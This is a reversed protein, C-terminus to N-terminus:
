KTGLMAMAIARRDVAQTYRQVEALTLHGSMTAIQHVSFNKEAWYCCFAKRLGHASCQEPLGAEAIWKRLQNGFANGDAWAGGRGHQMWPTGLPLDVVLSALEDQVPIHAVAGTKEQKVTLIREKVMSWGMRVADGRRQGTLLLLDMAIRQRTGPAWFARYTAIEEPTWTHRGAVKRIKAKIGSAVNANLDGREIAAELMARISMVMVRKTQPPLDATLKRIHGEQMGSTPLEGVRRGNIEMEMFRRLLNRRAKQTNSALAGFDHSALYRSVHAEVSGPSTLAPRDSMTAAYEDAARAYAAIFAPASFPVKVPLVRQFAGRRYYRRCIKGQM